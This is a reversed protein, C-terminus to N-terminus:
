TENVPAGQLDSSVRMFAVIERIADRSQETDHLTDFSHPADPLNVLRVPLNAAIAREIFRDMTQNLGPVEDRGSRVLFLPVDPDVDGVAKGSNPAAFGFQAAQDAVTSDGDLDLLFANSLVAFRLGSPGNTLLSLATPGNGSTAWIGIRAPDVGLDAANQRVFSLVETADALPDSCSYTIGVLGSAAVLQGWSVYCGWDKLRLGVLHSLGQDGYGAVFIVAPSARSSGSPLYVDLSLNAGGHTRCPIDSRVEVDQMGPVSLVARLKALERVRDIDLERTEDNM